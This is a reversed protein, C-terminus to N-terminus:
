EPNPCWEDLFCFAVGKAKGRRHIAASVLGIGAPISKAADTISDFVMNDDLRIVKKRVKANAKRSGALVGAKHRAIEEATRERKIVPADMDAYMFRCGKLIDGNLCAQSIRADSLGLVKAADKASEFIQGTEVCLVPRKRKGEARKKEEANRRKELTALLAVCETESPV